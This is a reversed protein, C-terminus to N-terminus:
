RVCWGNWVHQDAQCTQGAQLLYAPHAAHDYFITQPKDAGNLVLWVLAGGALGLLGLSFRRFGDSSVLLYLLGILLIATGTTM